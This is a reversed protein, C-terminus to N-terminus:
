YDWCCAPKAKFKILRPNEPPITACVIPRHVFDACVPCRCKCMAVGVDYQQVQAEHVAAGRILVAVALEGILVRAPVLLALLVAICVLLEVPQAHTAESAPVATLHCAASCTCVHM